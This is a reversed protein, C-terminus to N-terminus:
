KSALFQNFKTKEEIPALVKQYVKALGRAVDGCPDDTKLKLSSTSDKKSSTEAKEM